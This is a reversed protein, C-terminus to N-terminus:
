FLVIVLEELQEKCFFKSKKGLGKTPSYTVVEVKPNFIPENFIFKIGRNIVKYAPYGTNKNAIIYGERISNGYCDVLESDLYKGILLKIPAEVEIRRKNFVEIAADRIKMAPALEKKANDIAAIIEQKYDM